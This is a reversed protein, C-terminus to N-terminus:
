NIPMLDAVLSVPSYLRELLPCTLAVNLIMITHITSCVLCVGYLVYCVVCVM